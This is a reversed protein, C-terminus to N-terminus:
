FQGDTLFSVNNNTTNNNTTTNSTSTTATITNVNLPPVWGSFHCIVQQTYNGIILFLVKKKM